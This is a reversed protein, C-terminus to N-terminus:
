LDRCVICIMHRVIGSTCERLTTGILMTGILTKGTLTGISERATSDYLRESSSSSVAAARATEASRKDGAAAHCRHQRWLSM